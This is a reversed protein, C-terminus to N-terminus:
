MRIYITGCDDNHHGKTGTQMVPYSFETGDIKVWGIMDKYKKHLKKVGDKEKEDQIEHVIEDQKDDDEKIHKLRMGLLVAVVVLCLFLFFLIARKPTAKRGKRPETNLQEEM